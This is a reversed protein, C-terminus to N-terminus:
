RSREELHALEHGVVIIWLLCPLWSFGGHDTIDIKNYKFGTARAYWGVRGSIKEYAMKKYWEVFLERAVPVHSRLLFFGNNFVLPVDQKDKYSKGLYLFREGNVFEKKAVKPDRSLVEKIEKEIWSKYKEVIKKVIEDSVGLPARVILLLMM